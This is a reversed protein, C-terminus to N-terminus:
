PATGFGFARWRRAGLTAVSARSLHKDDYGAARLNARTRRRYTPALWFACEGIVAGLLQLVRLPLKSLLQMLLHM